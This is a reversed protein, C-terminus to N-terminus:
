RFISYELFSEDRQKKISNAFVLSQWAFKHNQQMHM